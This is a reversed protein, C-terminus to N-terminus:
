ELRMLLIIGQAAASTCDITVSINWSYSMLTGEFFEPASLQEGEFRLKSLRIKIKTPM